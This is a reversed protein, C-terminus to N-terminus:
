LINQRSLWIATWLSLWRVFWFSYANSFHLLVHLIAVCELKFNRLAWMSVHPYVMVTCLWGVLGVWGRMEGPDRFRTGAEAPTFAPIDGRGPPVNPLVTHDWIACSNWYCHPSKLWRVAITVGFPFKARLVTGITHKEGFLQMKISAELRGQQVLFRLDSQIESSMCEEVGASIVALNSVGITHGEMGFKPKM